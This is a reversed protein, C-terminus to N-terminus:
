PLSKVRKWKYKTKGDKDLLVMSEKTLELIKENVTTGVTKLVLNVKAKPHGGTSVKKMRGDKISWDMEFTLKSAFLKATLGTLEVVMTATGDKRVTLTRTGKFHDQWVGIAKESYIRDQPSLSEIADEAASDSNNSSSESGVTTIDTSNTHEAVAHEVESPEEIATTESPSGANIPRPNADVVLDKPTAAQSRNDDITQFESSNNIGCFALIMAIMAVGLVIHKGDVACLKLPCSDNTQDEM